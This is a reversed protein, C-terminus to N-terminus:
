IGKAKAYADMLAKAKVAVQAATDRPKYIEGGIGFGDAGAALWPELNDPGVGGVAYVPQGKPLVSKVAKIHGPGYTAAPFLKLFKAGAKLASFAESATAFGPMVTLGLAAARAIVDIDTNPTVILQGGISQIRDVDSPTLVTGAGCLCRDGYEAALKAISDFPDPSNLPVEILRIGSEYLVGAIELIEDPRIGRLIAVLPPADAPWIM